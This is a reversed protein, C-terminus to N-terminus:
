PTPNIPGAQLEALRDQIDKENLLKSANVAV